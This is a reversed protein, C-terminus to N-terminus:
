FDNKSSLKKKEEVIVYKLINENKMKITIKFRIEISKFSHIVRKFYVKIM